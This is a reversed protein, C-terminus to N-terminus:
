LATAPEQDLIDPQCCGLSRVADPTASGADSTIDFFAEGRFIKATTFTGVKNSVLDHGLRYAIDFQL